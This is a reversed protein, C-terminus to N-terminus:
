SQLINTFEDDYPVIHKKAEDIIEPANQVFYWPNNAVYELIDENQSLTSVWGVEDWSKNEKDFKNLLEQTSMSRWLIVLASCLQLEHKFSIKESNVEQKIYNKLSESKKTTWDENDMSIISLFLQLDAQQEQQQRFEQKEKNSIIWHYDQKRSDVMKEVIQIWDEPTLRVGKNQHINYNEFLKNINEPTMNGSYKVDIPTETKWNNQKTNDIKEFNSIDIKLVEDNFLITSELRDWLYEVRQTEWLKWIRTFWPNKEYWIWKTAELSKHWSEKLIKKYWFEEALIKNPDDKLYPIIERIRRKQEALEMYEKRNNSEQQEQTNNLAEISM